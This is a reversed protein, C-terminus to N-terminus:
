ASRRCEAPVYKWLAIDPTVCTWIIKGDANRSPTLAVTVVTGVGTQSGIVTITGTLPISGGGIKGSTSVTLGLGSSALTGDAWAKEAVAPKYMSAHVVIETMKARVSYDQYAPMAIAALIGIIAVVIM